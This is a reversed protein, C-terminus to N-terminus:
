RSGRTFKSPRRSSGADVRRGRGGAGGHADDPAAAAPAGGKKSACSGISQRVRRWCRDGRCPCPCGCRGAQICRARAGRSQACRVSHRYDDDSWRRRRCRHRRRCSRHRRAAGRGHQSCPLNPVDPPRKCLRVRSAARIRDDQGCDKPVGAQEIKQLVATM